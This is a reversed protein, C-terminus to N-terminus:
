MLRSVDDPVTTSLVRMAVTCRDTLFSPLSTASVSSRRMKARWLDAGCPPARPTFSLLSVWDSPGPVGRFPAAGDCRVVSVRNLLAPPIFRSYYPARFLPPYPKWSTHFCPLTVSLRREGRDCLRASHLRGPGNLDLHLNVCVCMYVCVGLLPLTPPPFPPLPPLLTGLWPRSFVRVKIYAWIMIIGMVAFVALFVVAGLSFSLSLRDALTPFLSPLSSSILLDTLCQCESGLTRSGLSSGSRHKIMPICLRGIYVYATYAIIAGAIAITLKRVVWPQPSKRRERRSLGPHDEELNYPDPQEDPRTPPM